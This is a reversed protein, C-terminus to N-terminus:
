AVSRRDSGAATQKPYEVTQSVFVVAMLAVYSLGYTIDTLKDTQRAYAVVFLVIQIGTVLILSFLINYPDFGFVAM